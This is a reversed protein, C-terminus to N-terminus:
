TSDDQFIIVNILTGTAFLCGTIKITVTHLWIINILFKFQEMHLGSLYTCAHDINEQLYYFELDSGCFTTNYCSFSCEYGINWM